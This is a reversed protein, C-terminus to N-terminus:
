RTVFHLATIYKYPHATRRSLWVTSDFRCAYASECARVYVCVSSRPRMFDRERVCVYVPLFRM